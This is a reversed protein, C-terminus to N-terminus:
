MYVPFQTFDTKGNQIVPSFAGWLDTAKIELEFLRKGSESINEPLKAARQIVPLTASDSIRKVLAASQRNMGLIRIYQPVKPFENTVGLYARLLIRRIRSHTYRKSKIKLILEELSGASTIDKCIKKELGETVDPITLLYEECCTRIVAMISREMLATTVPACGNRLEGSLIDLAPVPIFSDLSGGDCILKRCFSASPYGDDATQANHRAGVRKIVIPRIKSNLKKLSSLYEIALINNPEKLVPGLSKDFHELAAQRAFPYSVGSDIHQKMIINFQPADLINEVNQLIKVDAAESGASLFDVVGLSNIIEVGGLAFDKASSLVNTIPLEIVLDAGCQLAAATRARKSLIAPEARQVFSGSMVVVIFDASTERRTQDIHYKHGNHFPNYEAIIAAVTM